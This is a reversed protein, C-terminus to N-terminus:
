LIIAYSHRQVRESYRVELVKVEMIVLLIGEMANLKFGSRKLSELDGTM